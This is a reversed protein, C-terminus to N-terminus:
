ASSPTLCTKCDDLHLKKTSKLSSHCRIATCITSIIILLLGTGLVTPAQTEPNIFNPPAGSPNLTLPTTNPDFSMAM